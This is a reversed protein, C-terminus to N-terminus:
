QIPNLTLIIKPLLPTLVKAMAMLWLAVQSKALEGTMWSSFPFQALFLLIVGLVLAAEILGFIAGAIRNISKLFPIITLLHYIKNLIYFGLAVLKSAVAYILIFAVIYSFNKNPIFNGIQAGVDKYFIGGLWVGLVLGVLSGVAEILGMVFGFAVFIFIILILILDLFTFLM